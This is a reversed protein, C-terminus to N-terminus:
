RSGGTLRAHPPPMVARESPGDLADLPPEALRFGHVRALALVEDVEELGVNSGIGRDRSEGALALLITEALCALQVGQPLGQLSGAGFHATRDPLEVLGGDIVTLDRRARVRASADAPRAVDCIVTGSSLPADNLVPRAAGTASVIVRCRELRKLDTSLELRSPDGALRAALPKLAAVGGAPNGILWLRGPRARALLQACLAGVSGRAGVVAVELDELDLGRRALVRRTAAFAMAATLVSGTTIAPGRGLV